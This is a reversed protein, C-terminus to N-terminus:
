FPRTDDEFGRQVTEAAVTDGRPGGTERPKWRLSPGGEDAYICMKSRNQGSEKDQWKDQKMRGKVLVRQGKSLEAMQEALDDFCKVDFWHTEKTDDRGTTVAVSLTCFAKGSQGFRLVPDQGINGAISIDM